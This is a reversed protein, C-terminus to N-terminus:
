FWLECQRRIGMVQRASTGSPSGLSMVRLDDTRIRSGNGRGVLLARAAAEKGNTRKELPASESQFGRDASVTVTRSTVYERLGVSGKHCPCHLEAQGRDLHLPLGFDNRPRQRLHTRRMSHKERCAEMWSLRGPDVGAAPSSTREHPFMVNKKEPSALHNKPRSAKPRLTSLFM